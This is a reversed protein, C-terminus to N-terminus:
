ANIEKIWDMTEKMTMIKGDVEVRPVSVFGKKRMIEVDTVEKYEINNDKLINSLVICQPCHTTYLIVSM